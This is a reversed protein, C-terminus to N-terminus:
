ATGAATLKLRSALLVLNGAVLALEPTAYIGGIHIQPVFLLGVIFGYVIQLKKSTPATKPDTLMVFGLFFLPSHFALDSFVSSLSMGQFLYSLMIGTTATWLFTTVMDERRIKRTVLVGGAIVLPVMPGAGVWWTATLPGLFSLVVAALAVPNFLHRKGLTLIYKSAMATLSFMVLFLFGTQDVAPPAILTIILAAIMVSDRSSRAGVAGAGLRNVLLCTGLTVAISSAISVASYGIQGTLALLVALACLSELYYLTLRYLPIKKILHDIWATM